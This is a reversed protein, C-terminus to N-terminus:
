DRIGFREALAMQEKRGRGSLGLLRNRDVLGKKEAETPPFRLACLPRLLLGKAGADREVINMADRRQSMPRQGIVEGTAIFDANFESRLKLAERVMLIKCDLCPNFFRGYGHPPSKVMEIYTSSIDRIELPIGYKKWVREKELEPNDLAAQGFFPTVFKVAVVEVGQDQLVKCALISDLGGSFLVLGRGTRREETLDEIGM